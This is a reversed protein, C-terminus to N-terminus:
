LYPGSATRIRQAIAGMGDELTRYGLRACTGSFYTSYVTDM